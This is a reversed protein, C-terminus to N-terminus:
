EKMKNPFFKLTMKIQFFLKRIFKNIKGAASILISIEIRDNCWQNKHMPITLYSTIINIILSSLPAIISGKWISDNWLEEFTELVSWCWENPTSRRWSSQRSLRIHFRNLIHSDNRIEISKKAFKEFFFFNM